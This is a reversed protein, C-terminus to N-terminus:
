NELPLGINVSQALKTSTQFPNKKERVIRRKFVGTVKLPRGVRQKEEM